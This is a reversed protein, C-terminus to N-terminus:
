VRDFEWELMKWAWDTADRITEITVRLHNNLLGGLGSEAREDAELYTWTKDTTNETHILTDNQGYVKIRYSVGSEQADVKSSNSYDWSTSLRNRHEYSVTMEGTIVTPYSVGNFKLDTPCLPMENRKPEHPVEEGVIPASGFPFESSNNFAQFKMVHGGWPPLTPADVVISGYGHSMFWVRDGAQFQRPATDLCGRSLDSLVIKGTDTTVTKFAIFEDAETGPGREIWCVNVGAAFEGASISEVEDIDPGLLVHLETSTEDIASELTGSPTFNDVRVPPHYGTGKYVAHHVNYGTSVGPDGRAALTILHDWDPSLNGLVKIAEYPAKLTQQATLDPVDTIPDVWGSAPPATYATWDVAFIDEMAELDIKGSALNGSRIRIVRCVLGTIGLPPWNLKFVTGPRFDWGTRDAEIVLAALPYGLAMLGRACAKQANAGTSLGRLQLDQVSVEGNNAEIAALDQAQVSREVYNDERDVYSCRVTNRLEGWSPRSYSKVTCNDSDLVPLEGVSYDFRILKLVLLGTSPEVYIIGDIHRLIELILDRARQGRDVSMSLGLEHDALQAGVARFANLDLLGEPIGLGNQEIPRTMLDHIMCAPNADGDIYHDNETLGLGNPCRRVVASVNKIYPSTGLYFGRFVAYSIGPWGPLDGLHYELYDNPGQSDTGLYFDINGQVGGESEEGGFFEPDDVWVWQHDGSQSQGQNPTKDDFRIEVIADIQSAFVLQMGLYYKHGVTVKESSFLGTKVKKRIATVTLDGYWTVMPGELKCTGYVLPIPRGEGITPIRFDGLSGATADEFKPKPRLIEYAVTLLLWLGFLFWFGM